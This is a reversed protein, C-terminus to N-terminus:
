KQEPKESTFIHYWAYTEDEKIRVRLINDTVRLSIMSAQVLGGACSVKM